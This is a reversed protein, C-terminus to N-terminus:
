LAPQEFIYTFHPLRDKTGIDPNYVCKAYIIYLTFKDWAAHGRLSLTTPLM